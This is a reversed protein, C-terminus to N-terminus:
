HEQVQAACSIPPTIVGDGEDAPETDGRDEETNEPIIM